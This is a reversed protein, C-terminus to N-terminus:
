HRRRAKMQRPGPRLSNENDHCVYLIGPLGTHLFQFHSLTCFFRSLCYSLALFFRSLCYHTCYPSSRPVLAPLPQPTSTPRRGKGDKKKKGKSGRSILRRRGDSRAPLTKRELNFFFFLVKDTKPGNKFSKRKGSRGREKRKSRKSMEASAM